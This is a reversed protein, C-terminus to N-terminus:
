RKEQRQLTITERELKQKKIDPGKAGAIQSLIGNEKIM